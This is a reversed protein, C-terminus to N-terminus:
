RVWVQHLTTNQPGNPFDDCEFRNTLGGVGWHHTSGLWFPFENM